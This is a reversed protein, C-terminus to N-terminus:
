RQNFRHAETTFRSVLESMEVMARNYREIRQRRRRENDHGTGRATTEMADLCTFYRGQEDLYREVKDRLDRMERYNASAGDVKVSPARAPFCSAESLSACLCAAVLLLLPAQKM